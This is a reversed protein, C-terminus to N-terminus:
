AESGVLEETSSTVSEPMVAEEGEYDLLIPLVRTIFGNPIKNRQDEEDDKDGTFDALSFSPISYTHATNDLKSKAANFDLVKRAPIIRQDKKNEDKQIVSYEEFLAQNLEDYVEKSMKLTKRLIGMNFSLKMDLTIGSILEFADLVEQLEKNKLTVDRRLKEEKKAM